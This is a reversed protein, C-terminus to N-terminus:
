FGRSLLRRPTASAVEGTQKGAAGEEKFTGSGTVDPQRHPRPSVAPCCWQGKAMRLEPILSLLFSGHSSSVGPQIFVLSLSASAQAM